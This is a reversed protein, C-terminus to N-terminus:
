TRRRERPKKQLRPWERAVWRDIAAQDREVARRQPKQPTYGRGRLWERLYDPHYAVGHRDAVLKAVRRASWLATLFGFETAPRLLCALVDAGQAATLRPAPGPHPRAKLGDSGAARHAAVWRGVSRECVGLLDAVDRQSWGERVRRVALRRRQELEAATGKSRM